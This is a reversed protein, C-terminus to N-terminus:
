QSDTDTDSLCSLIFESTWFDCLFPSQLISLFVSFMIIRSYFLSIFLTAVKFMFM